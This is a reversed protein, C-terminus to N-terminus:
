NWIKYCGKSWGRCYLSKQSEWHSRHMEGCTNHDAGWWFVVEDTQHKFPTKEVSTSYSSVLAWSLGIWFLGTKRVNTTSSSGDGAVSVSSRWAPRCMERLVGCSMVSGTEHKVAPVSRKETCRNKLHLTGTGVCTLTSGHKWTDLINLNYYHHHNPSYTLLIMCIMVCEHFWMRNIRWLACCLQPTTGGAAPHQCGDEDLGVM